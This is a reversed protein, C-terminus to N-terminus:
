LTLLLILFFSKHMSLTNKLILGIDCIESKEFWHERVM